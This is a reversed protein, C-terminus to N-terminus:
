NAVKGKIYIIKPASKANSLITLGKFFDGPRGSSHYIAKITATKGPMVPEKPWDPATCGCSVTVNSIILPQNGINKFKFEHAVDPGNPINGFDFQEEEFQFDVFPEAPPAPSLVVKEKKHKKFLGKKKKPTEQSYGVLFTLALLLTLLNKM